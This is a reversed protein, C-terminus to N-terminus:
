TIQGQADVSGSDGNINDPYLSIHIGEKIKRTYWYPDRTIKIDHQIHFCAIRAPHSFMCNTYWIGM